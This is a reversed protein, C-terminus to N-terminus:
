KGEIAAMLILENVLSQKNIKKNPYLAKKREVLKELERDALPLLKVQKYAM